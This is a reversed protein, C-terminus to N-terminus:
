VVPAPEAKLGVGVARGGKDCCKGAKLINKYLSLFMNSGSIVM